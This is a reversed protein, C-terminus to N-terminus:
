TGNVKPGGSSFCKIIEDIAKVDDMKTQLRAKVDAIRESHVIDQGQIENIQYDDDLSDLRNKVEIYKEDIVKDIPKVEDAAKTFISDDLPSDVVERLGAEQTNDLSKYPIDFDKGDEFARAAAEYNSAHQKQNIGEPTSIAVDVSDQIVRAEEPDMKSKTAEFKDVFEKNIPEQEKLAEERVGEFKSASRTPTTIARAGAAGALTVLGM